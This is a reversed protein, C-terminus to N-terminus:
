TGSSSIVRSSAGKELAPAGGAATSTATSPVVVGAKAELVELRAVVDSLFDKLPDLAKGDRPMINNNRPTVIINKNNSNNNNHGSQNM